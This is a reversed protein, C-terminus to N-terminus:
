GQEEDADYSCGDAEQKRKADGDERMIELGKSCIRLGYEEEGGADAERCNAHYDIL